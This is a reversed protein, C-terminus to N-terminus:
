AAVVAAAKLPRPGSTRAARMGGMSLYGPSYLYELKHKLGQALQESTHDVTQQM